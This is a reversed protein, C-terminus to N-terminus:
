NLDLPEILPLIEPLKSPIDFLFPYPAPNSESSSEVMDMVEKMTYTKGSKETTRDGFNKRFWDPTFLGNAKWVKSANTFVLPIGPKYHEEMFEEYSIDAKRKIEM